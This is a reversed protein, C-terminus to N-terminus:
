FRSTLAICIKTDPTQPPPRRFHGAFCKRQLEHVSDNESICFFCFSYVRRLYEVTLDLIKKTEMVLALGENEKVAGEEEDDGMDEKAANELLKQVRERIKEYGNYEEGLENEFKRACLEALQLDRTLNEPMSHLESLAKRPQEKAPSHM